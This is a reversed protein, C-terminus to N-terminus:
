SKVFLYKATGPLFCVDPLEKQKSLTEAFDAESSSSLM